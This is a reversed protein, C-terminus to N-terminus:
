REGPCIDKLAALEKKAVERYDYRRVFERNKRGLEMQLPVDKLLRITQEALAESDGLPALQIQGPFVTDFVPLRFGAVPLSAAMFENISLGWGEEHSASIGVRCHALLKNKEAEPVAGAFTVLAGLGRDNFM